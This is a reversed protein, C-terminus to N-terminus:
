SAAPQPPPAFGAAGEDPEDEGRAAVGLAVAEGRGRGASHSGSLAWTSPRTLPGVSSEPSTRDGLPPNQVCLSEPSPGRNNRSPGSPASRPSTTSCPASATSQSSM